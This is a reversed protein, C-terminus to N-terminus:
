FEEYNKNKIDDLAKKYEFLIDNEYDEWRINEWHKKDKKLFIMLPIISDDELSFLVWRISVMRIQWKIKFYPYHLWIFTHSKEKLFRIFENKSFHKSLDKLYKKWFTKTIIVDM